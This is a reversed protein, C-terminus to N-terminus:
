LKSLVGKRPPLAALELKKVAERLKLPSLMVGLLSLYGCLLRFFKIFLAM